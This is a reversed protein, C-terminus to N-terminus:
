RWIAQIVGNYDSAEFTHVPLGTFEQLHLRYNKWRAAVFPDAEDGRVAMRIRGMESQWSGDRAAPETGGCAALVLAALPLFWGAIRRSGIDSKLM